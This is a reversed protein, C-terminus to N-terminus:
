FCKAFFVLVIRLCQLFYVVGRLHVGGKKRSGRLPISLTDTVIGRVGM